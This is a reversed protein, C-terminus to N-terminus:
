KKPWGVAQAIIVKQDSRLRMTKSLAARDGIEHVVTALGESACYLYVNQVLFGADLASYFERDQDRAKPMRSFDAV